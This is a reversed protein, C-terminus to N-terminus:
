TLEQQVQRSFQVADKCKMGGEILAETVLVPARGPGAVCHGASCCGPEEHFKIKV